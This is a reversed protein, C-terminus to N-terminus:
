IRPKIICAVSTPMNIDSIILGIKHNSLRRLAEEGDRAKLVTHGYLFPIDELVDRYETDNHVVLVKM